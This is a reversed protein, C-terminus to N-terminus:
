WPAAENSGTKGIYLHTELLKRKDEPIPVSQKKKFNYYVVVAKGQVCLRGQQWAEHYITFSKNGVRDIFTKIEVDHQFFLEDVFDYDTHALILPWTEPSFNLNPEFIRFLPNRGLEFWIALVTNNIHGLSDMDGFRPSVTTTFM